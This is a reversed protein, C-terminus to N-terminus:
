ITDCEDLAAHVPGMDAFERELSGQDLITDSGQGGKAKM